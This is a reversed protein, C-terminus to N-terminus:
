SNSPSAYLSPQSSPHLYFTTSACALMSLILFDTISSVGVQGPRTETSHGAKLGRSKGRSCPPQIRFLDGDWVSMQWTTESRRRAGALICQLGPQNACSKNYDKVLCRSPRRGPPYRKKGKEQLRFDGALSCILTQNYWKLIRRPVETQLSECATSQALGSRPKTWSSHKNVIASSM